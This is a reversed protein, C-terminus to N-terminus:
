GRLGRGEDGFSGKVRVDGDLGGTAIAGALFVVVPGNVGPEGCHIHAGAGGFIDVAETIKLDFRVRTLDHNVKFGAKGRTDTEVAPVEQDGTLKARFRRDGDYGAGTVLAVLVFVLALSTIRRM